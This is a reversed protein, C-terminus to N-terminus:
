AALPGSGALGILAVALLASGSVGYAAIRLGLGPPRAAGVRRRRSTVVLRNRLATRFTTTPAPRESELRRELEELGKDDKSV